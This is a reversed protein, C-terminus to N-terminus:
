TCRFFGAMLANVNGDDGGSVSNNVPTSGAAYLKYVSRTDFTGGNVTGLDGDAAPNMTVSLAGDTGFKTAYILMPPSGAMTVTRASPASAGGNIVTWSGHTVTAIKAGTGRFLAAQGNYGYGDNPVAISGSESGDLLRHWGATLHSANYPIHATFGAPLSPPSTQGVFDFIVLDGAQWGAPYPWSALNPSASQSIFQLGTLGGGLGLMVQQSAAGPMVDVGDWLHDM